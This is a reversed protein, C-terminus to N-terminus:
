KIWPYDNPIKWNNLQILATCYQQKNNNYCANKLNDYTQEFGEWKYYPEIGKNCLNEHISDCDNPFYRFSFTDKGNTTTGNGNCQEGCTKADLCFIFDGSNTDKWNEGIVFYFATGDNLYVFTFKLFNKTKSYQIYDKLYKDFFEQSSYSGNTVTWFRKDGNDIESKEIAQNITTYFKKLKAEAVNKRHKAILSPLTMAAVIGIIGM